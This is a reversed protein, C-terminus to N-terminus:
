GEYVTYINHFTAENTEMRGLVWPLVQNEMEMLLLFSITTLFIVILLRM